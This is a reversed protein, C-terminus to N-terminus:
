PDLCPLRHRVDALYEAVCQEHPQTLAYPTSWYTGKRSVIGRGLRYGGADDTWVEVAAFIGGPDVPEGSAPPAPVIISARGRLGCGIADPFPHRQFDRM